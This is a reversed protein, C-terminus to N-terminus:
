KGPEQILQKCKIICENCIFQGRKSQVMNKVKSKLKGCFSCKPDIKEGKFPIIQATM